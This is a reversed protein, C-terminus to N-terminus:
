LFGHGLMLRMIGVVIVFFNLNRGTNSRSMVGFLAGIMALPIIAWYAWGLLPVFAIVAFVLAVVGIILSVINFM